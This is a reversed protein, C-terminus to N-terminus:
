KDKKLFHYFTRTVKKLCRKQDIVGCMDMAIKVAPLSIDIIQGMGATIVQGRTMKYVEAAQYNNPSLTV